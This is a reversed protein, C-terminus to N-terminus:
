IRMVRVRCTVRECSADNPAPDMCQRWNEWDKNEILFTIPTGLSYGGRIGSLIRVRDSEIRMRGGRGYGCQRRQLEHNIDEALIRVGAPMGAVITTLAPGHSEGATMYRLM